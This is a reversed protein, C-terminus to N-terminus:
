TCPSALTANQQHCSANPLVNNWRRVHAATDTPLPLPHGDYNEQLCSAMLINAQAPGRLSSKLTKPNGEVADQKGAVVGDMRAAVEENGVVM